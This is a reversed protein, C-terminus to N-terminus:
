TFCGGNSPTDEVAAGLLLSHTTPGYVGDVTVGAYEQFRRVMFETVDDFVSPVASPFAQDPRMADVEDSRHFCFAELGQQVLSVSDGEDGRRLPLESTAVRTLAIAADDRFYYTELREVRYDFGLVAESAEFKDSGCTAVPVGISPDPHIVCVEVSTGTADTFRVDLRGRVVQAAGKTDVPSPGVYTARESIPTSEGDGCTSEWGCWREGKLRFDIGSIGPFQYVTAEIQRGVVGALNTTSFNNVSVFADTLDIIAVGDHVEISLDLGATYASFASGLGASAEEHTVGLLLQSLAAALPAGDDPVIREVLRLDSLPMLGPGCFLAVRVTMDLGIRPGFPRELTGCEASVSTTTPSAATVTTATSESGVVASVTSTSVSATTTTSIAAPSGSDSCGAVVLVGLVALIRWM